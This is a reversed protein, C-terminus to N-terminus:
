WSFKLFEIGGDPSNSFKLESTIRKGRKKLITGGNRWDFAETEDKRRYEAIVRGVDNRQGSVMMAPLSIVEDETSSKRVLNQGLRISEDYAFSEQLVSTTADRISTRAEAQGIHAWLFLLAILSSRRINRRTTIQASPSAFPTERAITTHGARIRQTARHRAKM